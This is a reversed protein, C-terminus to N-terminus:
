RKGVQTRLWSSKTSDQRKPEPDKAKINSANENWPSPKENKKIEKPVSPGFGFLFRVVGEDTCEIDNIGDKM